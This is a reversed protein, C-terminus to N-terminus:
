EAPYSVLTKWYWRSCCCCSSSRSFCFSHGLWLLLGVFLSHQSWGWGPFCGSMVGCVWVKKLLWVARWRRDMALEDKGLRRGAAALM